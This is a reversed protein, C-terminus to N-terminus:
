SGGQSRPRAIRAGVNARPPTIRLRRLRARVERRQLDAAVEWGLAEAEADRLARQHERVATQVEDPTATCHKKIVAGDREIVGLTREIKALRKLLGDRRRMLHDIEKRESGSYQHGRLANQTVTEYVTNAHVMEAAMEGKEKRLLDRQVALKALARLTDPEGYLNALLRQRPRGGGDRYSEVLATSVSGAKTTRHVVYAMAM